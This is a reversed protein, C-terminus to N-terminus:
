MCVTVLLKNCEYEKMTLSSYSIPYPGFGGVQVDGENKVMGNVVKRKYM